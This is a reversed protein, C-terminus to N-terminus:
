FKRELDLFLSILFCLMHTIHSCKKNEQSASIPRFPLKELYGLLMMMACHCSIPCSPLTGSLRLEGLM